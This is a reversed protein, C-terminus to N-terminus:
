VDGVVAQAKGGARTIADVAETQPGARRGFVVV